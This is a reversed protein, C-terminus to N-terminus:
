GLVEETQKENQPQSIFSDFHVFYTYNLLNIKCLINHKNCIDKNGNELKVLNIAHKTERQFSGFWLVVVVLGKRM